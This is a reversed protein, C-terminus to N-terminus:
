PPLGANLLLSVLFAVAPCNKGPPSVWSYMSKLIGTCASAGFAALFSGRWGVFQVPWM